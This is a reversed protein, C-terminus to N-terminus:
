RGLESKQSFMKKSRKYERYINSEGNWEPFETSRQLYECASRESTFNKKRMIQAVAALLQERRYETWKKKPGRRDKETRMAPVCDEALRFALRLWPNESSVDIGYAEMLEFLVGVKNEIEKQSYAEECELRLFANATNEWEKPIASHYKRPQNLHDPINQPKKVM